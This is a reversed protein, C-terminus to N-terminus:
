GRIEKERAVFYMHKTFNVDQSICVLRNNNKERIWYTAINVSAEMRSVDVSSISSVGAFVFGVNDRYGL